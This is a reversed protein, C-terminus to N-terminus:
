APAVAITAVVCLCTSQAHQRLEAPLQAFQTEPLHAGTRELSLVDVCQECAPPGLPEDGARQLIAHCMQTPPGLLDALAAENRRVVRLQRNGFTLEHGILVLGAAKTVLKRADSIRVHEHTQSELLCESQPSLLGDLELREIRIPAIV